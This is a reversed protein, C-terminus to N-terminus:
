PRGIRKAMPQASLGHAIISLCVTMSMCALLEDEGPLNFEELMIVCFLISALGRPGFWGLFLKERTALGTGALALWVPLIRIVTLFGVATALSQWTGHALGVPLLVAGFVLFSAMTLMQGEGEMFESIFHINHRYVNGFVAGAVFASLFGNGGLVEALLFAAFAAGTFVLGTSTEETMKADNAKDLAVAVLWGVLAGAVPGVGVQIISARLLGANDPGAMESVAIVAGLLVFPLALGDNLGSEINVTQRLREPVDPSSTVTQGLAADTPTLVAATLLAMGLGWGPFLLSIFLTGLGITLPMGILLMRVPVQWSMGLVHRRVHSADAFLVLILTVEAILRVAAHGQERGLGLGGLGTLPESLAFGLTTFLMPMTIVSRSLRGSALSYLMVAVSIILLIVTM